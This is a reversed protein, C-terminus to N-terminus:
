KVLPVMSAAKTQPVVLPTQATQKAALKAQKAEEHARKRLARLIMVQSAAALGHGMVPDLGAIKEILWTTKTIDFLCYGVVIAEGDRSFTLLSGAMTRMEVRGDEDRAIAAEIDRRTLAGPLM